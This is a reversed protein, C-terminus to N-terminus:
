PVYTVFMVKCTDPQYHAAFANSSEGVALGQISVRYTIGGEYGNEGILKYYVYIPGPVESGSINKLTITQASTQIEFLDEYLNLEEQFFVVNETVTSLKEYTEPMSRKDLEQVYAVEGVPLTTLQFDYLEGDITIHIDALQLVKESNNRIAAVAVSELHEDSGDEVFTVSKNALSVLELGDGLKVKNFGEEAQQSKEEADLQPWLLCVIAVVVLILIGVIRKKKM